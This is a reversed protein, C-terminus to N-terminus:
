DQLLSAAESDLFFSLRGHRPQIHYVPLRSASGKKNFVQAIQSAKSKGTVLFAVHGANNLIPGTLTVRKQGTIPHTAVECITGAKILDMQDPFISATHGDDGMGLMILDFAPLNHRLNVHGLIEDIYQECAEKPDLEGKIRHIQGPNVPIKGLLYDHAMKFNSELDGPPVCREDGWWFHIKNWPMLFAYDYALLDFLLRPTLGGSLALHFNGSSNSALQFLERAFAAAVEKPTEFIKIKTM